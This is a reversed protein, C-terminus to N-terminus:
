RMGSAFSHGFKLALINDYLPIRLFTLKHVVSKRVVDKQQFLAQRFLVPLVVGRLFFRVGPHAFYIM